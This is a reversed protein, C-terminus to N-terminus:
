RFKFKDGILNVRNVHGFWRLRRRSIIITLYDEFCLKKHLDEINPEESPWVWCIWQDLACDNRCIKHSFLSLCWLVLEFRLQMCSCVYLSFLRGSTVLNKQWFNGLDVEKNTIKHGQGKVEDLYQFPFPHFATSDHVWESVAM